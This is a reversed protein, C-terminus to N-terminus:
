GGAAVSQFDRFYEGINQWGYLLAKLNSVIGTEDLHSFDILGQQDLRKLEELKTSTKQINMLNPKRRGRRM